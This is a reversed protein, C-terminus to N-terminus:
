NIGTSISSPTSLLAPGRSPLYRAVVTLHDGTPKKDDWRLVFQYGIGLSTRTSFPKLQEATFPWVRLPVPLAAATGGLAADMLVGDFMLIEVTGSTIPIGRARTTRSYFIRVAFGDPGPVDDLNLALPM